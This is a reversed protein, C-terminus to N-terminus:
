MTPKISSISAQLGTLLQMLSAKDNAITGASTGLIGSLSALSANLVTFIGSIATVILNKANTDTAIAAKVGTTQLTSALSNVATTAGNLANNIRAIDSTAIGAGKQAAALVVAASLSLVSNAMIALTRVLDVAKAGTGTNINNAVTLVATAASTINNIALVIPDVNLTYTTAAYGAVAFLLTTALITRINYIM